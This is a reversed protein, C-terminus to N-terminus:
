DMFEITVEPDLNLKIGPAANLADVADAPTRANQLRALAAPDALLPDLDVDFITVTQSDVYPSSTRVLRGSPQVRLAVHLGALMQRLLALESGQPSGRSGGGVRDVIEALGSRALRLTLLSTGAPTRTLSLSMAGAEGGFNVGGARVSPNGPAAPGESLRLKGVDTFAYIAERGEADGTSLPRTSVLAVGEGLRGALERAQQESFPDFPRGDAGGVLASLQRMQALAASTMLTRNEITGTGDANITLLMTSHVCGSLIAASAFVLSPRALRRFSM